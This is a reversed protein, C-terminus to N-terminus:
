NLVRTTKNLFIQTFYLQDDDEDKIPYLSALEYLDSAYAMVGGSNLFRKEDEKVEPYSDKLEPDPWCFDEASFLVRAGSTKFKNVAEQPEDNAVM